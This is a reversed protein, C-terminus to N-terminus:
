KKCQQLYLEVSQLLFYRRKDIKAQEYAENELSHQEDALAFGQLTKVINLVDEVLENTTKFPEVCEGGDVIKWNPCQTKDTYNKALNCDDACGNDIVCGDIEMNDVCCMYKKM